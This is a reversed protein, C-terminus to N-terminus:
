ARKDPHALRVDSGTGVDSDSSRGLSCPRGVISRKLLCPWSVGDEAVMGKVTSSHGRLSGAAKGRREDAGCRDGRKGPIMSTVGEAHSASEFM